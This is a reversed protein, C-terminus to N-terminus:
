ETSVGHSTPDGTYIAYKNNYDKFIANRSEEPLETRVFANFEKRLETNREATAEVDDIKVAEGDKPPPKMVIHGIADRLPKREPKGNYWRVMMARTVPGSSIAWTRVNTDNGNIM